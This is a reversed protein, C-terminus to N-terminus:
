TGLPALLSEPNLEIILKKTNNYDQLLKHFSNENDMQIGVMRLKKKELINLKQSVEEKFGVEFYVGLLLQIKDKVLWLSM